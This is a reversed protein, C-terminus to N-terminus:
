KFPNKEKELQKDLKKLATKAERRYYSNEHNLFREFYPRFEERKHQSLANIAHGTVDYDDLLNILIPIAEETKLKGVLLVLMQRDKGFKKNSIIKLYKNIYKKSHIAEVIEAIQWRNFGPKDSVFENLLMPVFEDFGKYRFLSAFYWKENDLVALDYYKLIIPTLAEKHKPMFQQVQNLIEFQYGRELLEQKFKLVVSNPNNTLKVEAKKANEIILKVLAPNSNIDYNSMIVGGM